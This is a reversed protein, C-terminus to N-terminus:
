ADRGRDANELRSLEAALERRAHYLRTWVTKLPISLAQAIEEGKLEQLEFLVFVERKSSSLRRLGQNIRNSAEKQELTRLPSEPSAHHEAHELGLFRRLVAGRRRTAALKVAVGYLWARQSNVDALARSNRLAIVFLEQLLDDPDVLNGTLRSLTLRLESAHAVYLAHVDDSTALAREPEALTRELDMTIAVTGSSSSLKV